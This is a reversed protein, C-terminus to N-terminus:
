HTQCRASTHECMVAMRLRCLYFKASMLAAYFSLFDCSSIVQLLLHIELPQESMAHHKRYM